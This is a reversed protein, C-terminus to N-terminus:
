IRMVESDFVCDFPDRCFAVNKFRCEALSYVEFGHQRLKSSSHDSCLTKKNILGNTALEVIQKFKRM